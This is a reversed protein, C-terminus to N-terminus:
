CAAPCGVVESQAFSARSRRRRNSVPQAHDANVVVRPGGRSAIALWPSVLIQASWCRLQPWNLHDSEDSLAGPRKLAALPTIHM